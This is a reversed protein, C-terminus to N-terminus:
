NLEGEQTENRRTGKGEEGEEGEEGDQPENWWKGKGIQVKKTKNNTEDWPKCFLRKPPLVSATLSTNSKSGTCWVTYCREGKEFHHWLDRNSIINQAWAGFNSPVFCAGSRSKFFCRVGMSQYKM